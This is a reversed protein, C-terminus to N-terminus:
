FIAVINPPSAAGNPVNLPMSALFFTWRKHKFCEESLRELNFMEGIPMGWGGLMIEHLHYSELGGPDSKPFPIQEFGPADGGCASFGTDWFFRANDISTEVGTWTTPTKDCWALKEEATMSEYGVKWGSRILLIDGKKFEVGQAKACAKLDEAKIPHTSLLDYHKGTEQTWRYYDLLVGRGVIGQDCWADISLALTDPGSGQPQKTGNHYIESTSNPGSIQPQKIGNYWVKERQYGYHRLGDWQSSNQTNFELEDDHVTRPEKWVITHKYGRRNHTPKALHNIPFDLGVRVGTKIEKAAEVVVDPTLLNLTGLKDDMGYLGWASWPPDGERLPLQDFTPRSTAM